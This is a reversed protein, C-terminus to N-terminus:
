IKRTDIGKLEEVLMKKFEASVVESALQELEGRNNRIEERVIARIKEELEGPYGLVAPGAAAVSEPPKEPEVVEEVVPEEPLSPLEKKRDIAERVLDALSEGDFPKVIIGDHDVESVKRLDLPEFAGRVFFLAIQRGGEQSRALGALIADPRLGAIANIAELGDSFPFITFEPAPLALEVAKQLSPSSDAVIVKYAM